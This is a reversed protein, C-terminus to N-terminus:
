VIEDGEANDTLPSGKRNLPNEGVGNTKSGQEQQCIQVGTQLITTSGKEIRSKAALVAIIYYKPSEDM